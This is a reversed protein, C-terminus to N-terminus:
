YRPPYHAGPANRGNGATDEFLARQLSATSEGISRSDTVATSFFAFCVFCVDGSVLVLYNLPSMNPLRLRPVSALVEGM